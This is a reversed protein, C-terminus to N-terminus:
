ALAAWRKWGNISTWGLSPRRDGMTSDFEGIGGRHPWGARGGPSSGGALGALARGAVGPFVCGSPMGAPQSM